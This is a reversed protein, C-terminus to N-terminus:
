WTYGIRFNYTEDLKEIGAVAGSDYEYLVEAAAELNGLLPFSLGLATNLIIDTTTDLNWIADHNMYLNTGGGLYDSSIRVSWNAGPYDQDPATSFDENVYALGLEAELMFISETYFQRGLYVGVYYRLDLDAFQDQEASANVGTYWRDELFYDYKGIVKWNDAIEADNAEDIEGAMRITYRDELSRWISELSYDLEDTDSNGRELAWAFSILGSAKYGDGLEWPEPNVILVDAMPYSLQDGNGETVVFIEDEITIPRDRFIHGDAMQVVLNGETHMSQIEENKISLTGAFGTEITVVGDRSATVTGIVRSGNKLLIEDQPVASEEAVATTLIGCVLVVFLALKKGVM